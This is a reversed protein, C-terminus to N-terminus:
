WIDLKYFFPDHFHLRLASFLFKLLRCKLTKSKDKSSLLAQYEMSEEAESSVDPRIKESFLSFTNIFTTQQLRSQRKLPRIFQYVKLPLLEAMKLKPEMTLPLLNKNALIQEQLLM